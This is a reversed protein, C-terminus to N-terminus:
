ILVKKTKGSQFHLELYTKPLLMGCNIHVQEFYNRPPPPSLFSGLDEEEKSRQLVLYFGPPSIPACRMPSPSHTSELNFCELLLCTNVQKSNSDKDNHFLCNSYKHLSAALGKRDWLFMRGSLLATKHRIEFLDPGPGTQCSHPHHTIIHRWETTM